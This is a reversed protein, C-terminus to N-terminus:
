DTNNNNSTDSTNDDSQDDDSREVVETGIDLPSSTAAAPSKKEHILRILSKLQRNKDDLYLGAIRPATVTFWSYLVFSVCYADCAQQIFPDLAANHNSPFTLTVSTDAVSATIFASSETALDIVAQRFYDTVIPKENSGITIDKFLLNGKDDVSRKGIISLARSVVSFLTEYNINVTM